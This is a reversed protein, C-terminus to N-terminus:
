IDPCGLDWYRFRGNNEDYVYNQIARGCPGFSALLTVAAIMFFLIFMGLLEKFTLSLKRASVDVGDCRPNVFFKAHLLEAYGKLTYQHFLNNLTAQMCTDESRMMMGRTRKTIPAGVIQVKCKQEAPKGKAWKYLDERTLEAFDCHTSVDDNAKLIGEIQGATGSVKVLSDELSHLTSTPDAALSTFYNDNASGKNLCFRYPLGSFQGGTTANNGQSASKIGNILHNYEQGETFITALNATYIATLMFVLYVWGAQIIRLQNSQAKIIHKGTLSVCANYAIEGTSLNRQVKEGTVEDIETEPTMGNEMDVKEIIVLIIAYVVVAVLIALWATWDFPQSFILMKEAYTKPVPVPSGSIFQVDDSVVPVSWVYGLDTIREISARWTGQGFMDVCECHIMEHAEATYSKLTLTSSAQGRVNITVNRQLGRQSIEFSSGMSIIEFTMSGLETLEDFLEVDFGTWQAPGGKVLYHSKLKGDDCPSIVPHHPSSRTGDPHVGDKDICSPKCLSSKRTAGISNSTFERCSVHTRGCGIGWTDVTSAAFDGKTGCLPDKNEGSCTKWPALEEPSWLAENNAINRTENYCESLEGAYFATRIHYGSFTSPTNFDAATPLVCTDMELKPCEERPTSSPPCEYSAVALRNAAAASAAFDESEDGSGELM